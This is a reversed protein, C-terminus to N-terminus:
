QIIYKLTLNRCLTQGQSHHEIRVADHPSFSSNDQCHRYFLYLMTVPILVLFPNPKRNFRVQHNVLIQTGIEDICHKSLLYVQIM